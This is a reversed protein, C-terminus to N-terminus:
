RRLWLPLHELIAQLQMVPSLDLIVAITILARRRMNATSTSKEMIMVFAILTVGILQLINVGLVQYWGDTTVYPLDILRRGPLVLLYGIGILMVGMRIRRQIIDQRIFGDAGRKAAFV